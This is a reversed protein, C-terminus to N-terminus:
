QGVLRRAATADAITTDGATSGPDDPDTDTDTDHVGLRGGFRRELAALDPDDPPAASPTPAPSPMPAAAPSPPAAATGCGALAAGLGATLVTRRPVRPQNMVKRRHEVPPEHQDRHLAGHRQPVTLGVQPPRVPDPRARLLLGVRRLVDSQAPNHLDRVAEDLTRAAAPSM